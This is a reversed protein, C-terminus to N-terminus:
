LAIDEQDTCDQPNNSPNMHTQQVNQPEYISQSTQYFYNHFHNEYHPDYFFNNIRDMAYM